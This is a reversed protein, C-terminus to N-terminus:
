EFTDTFTEHPVPPAPELTQRTSPHYPHYESPVPEDAPPM